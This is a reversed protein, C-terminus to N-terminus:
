EVHTAAWVRVLGLEDLANAPWCVALQFDVYREGVRLGVRSWKRNADILLDRRVILNDLEDAVLVLLEPPAYLDISGSSARGNSAAVFGPQILPLFHDGEGAAAAHRERPTGGLDEGM